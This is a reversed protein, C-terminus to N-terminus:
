YACEEQILKELFMRVEDYDKYKRWMHIFIVDGVERRVEDLHITRDDIYVINCSRIEQRIIAKIENIAKKMVIGKHPHFEIYHNNFLEHIGFAKLAEIAIERVNWSLSAVYVGTDKAWKLFDRVKPFLKVVVGTSDAIEDENIKTFPPTLLSLDLCDWITGDLDIFLVRPCCM